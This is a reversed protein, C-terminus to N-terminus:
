KGKEPKYGSETFCSQIASMWHGGEQGSTECVGIGKGSDQSWFASEEETESKVVM